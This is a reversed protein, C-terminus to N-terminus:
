VDNIWSHVWADEVPGMDMLTMNINYLPPGPPKM